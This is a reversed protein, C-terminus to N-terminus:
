CIYFVFFITDSIIILKEMNINIYTSFFIKLGYKFYPSYLINLFKSMFLYQNKLSGHIFGRKPLCNIKTETRLYKCKM